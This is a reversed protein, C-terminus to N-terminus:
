HGGNRQAARLHIDTLIALTDDHWRRATPWTATLVSSGHLAGPYCTISVTVKAELLRQAFLEAGARLTDHEATLIHTEPFGSVDLALLPSAIPSSALSPDGLYLASFEDVASRARRLEDAYADASAVETQVASARLDLAPVELILATLDLNPDAVVAAAALNGGASAGGLTIVKPNVGIHEAHARVWHVTGVVDDVAAPFPFEPALRYDVLLVVCNASVARHRATADAVLEHISGSCWGGGHLVVHAPLSTDGNPNYSRVCVTGGPVAVEHDRISHVDPGPLGFNTFMRDIEQRLAERRVGIDASQTASSDAADLHVRAAPDMKSPSTVTALLPDGSLAARDDVVKRDGKESM